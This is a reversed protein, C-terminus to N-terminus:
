RSRRYEVPVYTFPVAGVAPQARDRALEVRLLTNAEDLWHLPAMLERRDRKAAEAHLEDLVHSLDLALEALRDM